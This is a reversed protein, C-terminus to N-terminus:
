YDYPQEATVEAVSVCPRCACQFPFGMTILIAGETRSPCHFRLTRFRIVHASCCTCHETQRLTQTGEDWAPVSSSQCNGQCRTVVVSKAVCGPLTILKTEIVHNCSGLDGFVLSQTNTNENLPAQSKKAITKEMPATQETFIICPESSEDNSNVENSGSGELAREIVSSHRCPNVFGDRVTNVYHEGQKIEEHRQCRLKRKVTDAYPVGPGSLQQCLQNVKVSKGDSDKFTNYGLLDELQDFEVDTLQVPDDSLRRKNTFIRGENDELPAYLIYKQAAERWRSAHKLHKKTPLSYSIMPSEDDALEAQRYIRLAERKNLREHANKGKENKSRTKTCPLCNELSQCRFRTENNRVRGYKAPAGLTRNCCSSKLLHINRCKGQRVVQNPKNINTQPKPQSIISSHSLQSSQHQVSANANRAEDEPVSTSNRYNNSFDNFEKVHFKVPTETFNNRNNRSSDNSRRESTLGSHRFVPLYSRMLQHRICSSRHYVPLRHSKSGSTCTVPSRMLLM